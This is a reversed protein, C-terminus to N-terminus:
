SPTSRVAPLGYSDPGGGVNDRGVEQGDLYVVIGDDRYCRLTLFEHEADTTFRTRFYASKRHTEDAPTGIDVGTFWEDGYGFGGSEEPSDSGIQWSQDDFNATFFTTHFDPDANAPDIGNSPHLWRWESDPTVLVEQPPSEALPGLRSESEKLLVDALLWDHWRWTGLDRLDGSPWVPAIAERAAGPRGAQLQVMATVTLASAAASPHASNQSAIELAQLASDLDGRRYELLGRALWYFPVFPSDDLLEWSTRLAADFDFAGLDVDPDSLLVIAVFEAPVGAAIEPNAFDGKGIVEQAFDAARGQSAMVAGLGM